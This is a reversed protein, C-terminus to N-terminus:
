AAVLDDLTDALPRLDHLERTAPPRADEGLRNIWIVPIGLSVCPVVDHFHSQAVHVHSERDAGSRALFVEWHWPSPKYSGIEGAVVALEFEVGIRKMSAEIFDRDTNSLIALRWGRGLASELADRVEPFTPWDPLSRALADGEEPPLPLAESEALRALARNLVDRYALSPDERQVEPELEHYRNLLRPVADAGFLRELERGLGANWDILTGYCDFTAWRDTGSV